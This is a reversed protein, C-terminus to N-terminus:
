EMSLIVAGCRYHMYLVRKPIPIAVSTPTMTLNDGHFKLRGLEFNSSLIEIVGKEVSQEAMEVFLQFNTYAAEATKKIKLHLYLSLIYFHFIFTM